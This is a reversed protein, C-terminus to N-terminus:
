FVSLSFVVHNSIRIGSERERYWGSSGRWFVETKERGRLLGFGELIEERM